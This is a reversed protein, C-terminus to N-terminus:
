HASCQPCQCLSRLLDLSFIGTNHGDSWTIKYAYRGVPAMAVPALPVLENPKLVRLPDPPQSREERCSACPCNDRLHKWTYVSRHGDSWDIVLRDSGDKSLATPVLPASGSASM